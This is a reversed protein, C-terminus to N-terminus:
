FTFVYKEAVAPPHEALFRHLDLLEEAACLILLRKKGRKDM